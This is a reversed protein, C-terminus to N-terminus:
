VNSKKQAPQPFFTFSFHMTNIVEIEQLFKKYGSLFVRNLTEAMSVTLSSNNSPSSHKESNFGCSGPSPCKSYLFSDTRRLRENDEEPWIHRTRNLNTPQQNLIWSFKVCLNSALLAVFSYSSLLYNGSDIKLGDKLQQWLGVACTVSIIMNHVRTCSASIVNRLISASRQM